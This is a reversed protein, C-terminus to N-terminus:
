GGGRREGIHDKAAEERNRKDEERGRGGRKDGNGEGVEWGREKRTKGQEEVVLMRLRMKKYDM